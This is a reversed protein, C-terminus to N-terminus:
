RLHTIYATALRSLATSNTISDDTGVDALVIVKQLSDEGRAPTFKSTYIVTDGRMANLYGMNNNSLRWSYDNGGSAVLTVSEGKHLAAASPNIEVRHSKSTVECGIMLAAVMVSFLCAGFMVRVPYKM